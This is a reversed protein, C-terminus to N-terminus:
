NKDKNGSRQAILSLFMNEQSRHNFIDMCGAEQMVVDDIFAIGSASFDVAQKLHPFEAATRTPSKM